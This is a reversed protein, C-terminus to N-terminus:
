RGSRGSRHPAGPALGTLDLRDIVNCLDRPLTHHTQRARCRGLGRRFWDAAGAWVQPSGNTLGRGQERERPADSRTAGAGCSDSQESPFHTM